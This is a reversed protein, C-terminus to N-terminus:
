ELTMLLDGKEVAQRPRVYIERVRGGRHCKIENEMKMAELVLLGQGPIVEDGVSVEVKVILAPMPAHIELRSSACVRSKEFATLLKDRDSLVKVRCRKGNILLEFDNPGGTSVVTVSERNVLVSHANQGIRVMDLSPPMGQVSIGHGNEDVEAVYEQGGLLVFCRQM